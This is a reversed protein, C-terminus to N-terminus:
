RIWDSLPRITGDPTLADAQWLLIAVLARLQPASLADVSVGVAEQAADLVLARSRSRASNRQDQQAQEAEAASRRAVREAQEDPTLKRYGAAGTAINIEFINDTDM